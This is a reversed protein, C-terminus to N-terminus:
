NISRAIEVWDLGDWVLTLTDDNGLTVAGALNTNAAATDPVTVTGSSTGRLILLQGTHSPSAISGLTVAAGSPSSSLGVFLTTPTLTEGNSIPENTLRAVVLGVDLEGVITTNGQDDISFLDGAVGNAEVAFRSFTENNDEDINAIVSATSTLNLNGVSQVSAVGTLDNGGMALDGTMSDGSDNVFAANATTTTLLTGGDGTLLFTQDGTIPGVDLTGMGGGISARMRLESGANNLVIDFPNAQNWNATLDGLRLVDSATFGLGSGASVRLASSGGGALGQGAVSTALKSEDIGGDAVELPAGAGGTLGEGAVSASLKSEDIGGDAVDLTVDGTVGGGALGEGAVVSTIDASVTPADDFFGTVDVILHMSGSGVMGIALSLDEDAPAAVTALPVTASNARIAGAEFTLVSIVPQAAEFPYAVLHGGGTPHVATFNVTVASAGDPIACFGQLRLHHLVTNALAGPPDDSTSAGSGDRTDILRCPLIDHYVLDAAAAPTVLSVALALAHLPPKTLM